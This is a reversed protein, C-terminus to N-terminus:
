KEHYNKFTNMPFFTLYKADHARLLFDTQRKVTGLGLTQSIFNPRRAIFALPMKPMRAGGPCCKLIQPACCAVKSLCKDFNILRNLSPQLTLFFYLNSIDDGKSCQGAEIGSCIEM